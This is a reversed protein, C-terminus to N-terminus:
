DQTALKDGILKDLLPVLFLCFLTFSASVFLLPTIKEAFAHVFLWSGFIIGLQWAGNNISMLFAFNFGEVRRLCARAALNYIALTGIVDAIGNIFNIAIALYNTIEIPEILFLFLLHASAGLLSALILQNKLALKTVYRNHIIAGLIAGFSMVASLEGIFDQHFHLKDVMHYYLPLGFAPSFNWFSIFLAIIWISKAKLSELLLSSTVKAQKINISFKNEKVILWTAVIVLAPTIATLLAAIHLATGPKFQNCLFGGALSAVLLALNLCAWEISQFKGVSNLKRGKEITIADIIVDSAAVSVATIFLAFIIQEPQNLQNLSLLALCAFSNMLILWSKRRYGLLPIYDSILGYLPKILWPITLVALYNAVLDAHM